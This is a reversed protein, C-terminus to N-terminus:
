CSIRPPRDLPDRVPQTPLADAAPRARGKVRPPLVLIANALVARLPSGPDVVDGSASGGCGAARVCGNSPDTHSACRCSAGCMSCGKAVIVHVQALLVVAIALLGLFRRGRM